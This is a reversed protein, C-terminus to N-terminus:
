AYRVQFTLSGSGSILSFPDSGRYYWYDGPAGNRTFLAAVSGNYIVVTAGYDAKDSPRWNTVISFPDVTLEVLHLSTTSVGRTDTITGFLPAFLSDENAGYYNFSGQSHTARTITFAAIEPVGVAAQIISM